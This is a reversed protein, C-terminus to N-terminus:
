GTRMAIMPDVTAARRAPLYCAVVAVACLLAAAGMFAFPERPGVGLAIRLGIEQTRRSVAYNMVSYTGVAALLLALAALAGFLGANLRWRGMATAVIEDMTTLEVPQSPDIERVVRRIDGAIALPVVEGVLQRALRGRSAGLMIWTAVDRRRDVSRSLLLNSVNACAILLVAGVACLLLLLAQRTTGLLEAVLPRVVARFPETVKPRHERTLSQIAVDLAARAQEISVGPRLRSVAVMWFLNRNHLAKQGVAGEVPAWVEADDPYTLGRPMVGVIAHSEHDLLMTRGVVAPDGGYLRQWVGHGIVVVRPAEFRHDDARLTRGLAPPTGLVDFFADSILRVQVQQPDGAGTVATAFNVSSMSAISEFADGARSRWDRADLYSIEVFPHNRVVDTQWLVALHKQDRDLSRRGGPRAGPVTQPPM